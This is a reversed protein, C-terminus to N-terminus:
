GRKTPLKNLLRHKDKGQYVNKIQGDFMEVTTKAFKIYELDHTVMLFTKNAKQNLGNLLEMLEQGSEYDLNGTPEDAILIEPNTILARSLAVKQQQGSSLESPLYKAWETMEVLKLVEMAKNLGVAKDEGLLSLPFAVNEVVNLARIWRPQQYVMGINQKRFNAREDEDWRGYLDQGLISIKGSTPEELGLIIHLLTSKGCGSPGFIVAFDGSKIELTIDKLVQVDQVGVHFTKSVQDIKIATQHNTSTM